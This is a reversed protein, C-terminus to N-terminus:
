NKGGRAGERRLRTAPPLKKPEVAASSAVSLVIMMWRVREGDVVTNSVPNDVDLLVVMRLFAM